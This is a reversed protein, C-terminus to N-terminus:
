CGPLSAWSKLDGSDDLEKVMSDVMKAMEQQAVVFAKSADYSVTIKDSFYKKLFPVDRIAETLKSVGCIRDLYDRNNMPVKGQKDLFESLNNDLQAVAQASM